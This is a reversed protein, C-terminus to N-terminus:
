KKKVRALVSMLLSKCRKARIFESKGNLKICAMGTRKLVKGSVSRYLELEIIGFSCRLKLLKGAFEARWTANFV